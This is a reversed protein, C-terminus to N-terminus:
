LMLQQGSKTSIKCPTHALPRRSAYYGGGSGKSSTAAITCFNNGHITVMRPAEAEWDRSDNQKICLADICLYHFGLRPTIDIADKFTMPLQEFPIGVLFSKYNELTLRLPLSTGWCHSLTLYRIDLMSGSVESLCVKPKENNSTLRLLRRPYGQPFVSQSSCLSHHEQCTQLWSRALGLTSESATLLSLWPGNSVHWAKMDRDRLITIPHLPRTDTSSTPDICIELEDYRNVSIKLVM